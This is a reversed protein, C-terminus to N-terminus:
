ETLLTPKTGEFVSEEAFKEAMDKNTFVKYLTFPQNAVNRTYDVKYYSKDPAEYVTAHRAGSEAVLTLIENM